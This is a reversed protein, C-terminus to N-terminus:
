NERIGIYGEKWAIYEDEYNRDKLVRNIYDVADLSVYKDIIKMQEPYKTQDLGNRCMNVFWHNYTHTDEETFSQTKNIMQPLEVLLLIILFAM